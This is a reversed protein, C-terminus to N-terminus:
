PQLPISIWVYSVIAAFGIWFVVDRLRENVFNELLCVVTIRVIRM